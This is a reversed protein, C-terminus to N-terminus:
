QNTGDKQKRKFWWERLEKRYDEIYKKYLDFTDDTEVRYAVFQQYGIYDCKKEDFYIRELESNNYTLYLWEEYSKLSPMVEPEKDLEELLKDFVQDDIQSDLNSDIYEKIFQEDEPVEIVELQALLGDGNICDERSKFIADPLEYCDNYYDLDGQFALDLEDGDIVCQELELEQGNINVTQTM